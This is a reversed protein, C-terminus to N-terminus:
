GAAHLEWTEGFTNRPLWNSGKITSGNTYTPKGIHGSYFGAGPTYDLMEGTSVCGRPVKHSPGHLNAVATYLHGEGATPLLYVELKNDSRWKMRGVTVTDTWPKVDPCDPWWGTVTFKAKEVTYVYSTESSYRDNKVFTISGQFKTKPNGGGTGTFTGEWVEPLGSANATWEAEAVGVTSPVRWRIRVSQNRVPKGAIVVLQM